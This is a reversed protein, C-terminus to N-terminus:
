QKFFVTENRNFGGPFIEQQAAPRGSMKNNLMVLSYSMYHFLRTFPRISELQEFYIVTCLKSNKAPHDINMMLIHDNIPFSQENSHFSEKTLKMGDPLNRALSGITSNNDINGLLILSNEGIMEATVVDQTYHKFNYGSEHLMDVFKL